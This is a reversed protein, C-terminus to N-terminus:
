RGSSKDRIRRSEDLCNTPRISLLVLSAVGSPHGAGSRSNVSVSRVLLAVPLSQGCRNNECNADDSSYVRELDHLKGGSETMTWLLKRGVSGQNECDSTSRIPIAPNHKRDIVSRQGYGFLGGFCRGVVRTKTTRGFPLPAHAHRLPMFSAKLGSARSSHTVPINFSRPGRRASRRNSLIDCDTAGHNAGFSTSYSNLGFARVHDHRVRAFRGMEIGFQQTVVTAGARGIDLDDFIPFRSPQCRLASIIEGDDRSDPANKCRRRISGRRKITKLNATSDSAATRISNILDHPQHRCVIAAGSSHGHGKAFREAAVGDLDQSHHSLWTCLSTDRGAPPSSSVFTDYPLELHCVNLTAASVPMSCCAWPSPALDSNLAIDLHM